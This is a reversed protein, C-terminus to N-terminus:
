PEDGRVAACGRERAGFAEVPRAMADAGAERHLPVDEGPLRHDVLHRAREFLGDARERMTEDRRELRPLRRAAVLAPLLRCGDHDLADAGATLRPFADVADAVEAHLIM